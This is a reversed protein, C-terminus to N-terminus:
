FNAVTLVDQGLSLRTVQKLNSAHHIKRIGRGGISPFANRGGIIIPAHFWYIKNVAKADLFSGIVEGGGEILVSIIGERALRKLLPKIPIRKGAFKWIKVGHREFKQAKTRAVKESVCIIVREDRMVQAQSPTKLESDLIIRIPDPIGKKRIGLHPNDRLITNVGILIAQYDSRIKTRSYERAKPTTIWKSDGTRTAIRGDLSTAVKVAVFPLKKEYFHFFSENIDKVKQALMGVEVKIGKQKLVKFGKGRMLTNPDEVACMAKKIGAKIIAETCPPTKGWHGCPELTTYLTAGRPSIKCRSLAVVEAHPEGYKAHFGEGIIKGKKVVVAGVRPNPAVLTVPARHALAIARQMFQEERIFAM